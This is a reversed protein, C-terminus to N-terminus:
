ETRPPSQPPCSKQKGFTGSGTFRFSLFVFSVGAKGSCCKKKKENKEDLHSIFHFGPKGAKYYSASVTGPGTGIGLRKRM